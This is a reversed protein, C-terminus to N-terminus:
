VVSNAQYPSPFVKFGIKSKKRYDVSLRDTILSGLGSGTGGGLSNYILIGELNECNEALKRISELVEDITQKGITYHGRAFNTSADEKGSILNSQKFLKKANNIYKLM